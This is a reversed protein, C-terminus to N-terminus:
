FVPTTEPLSLRRLASFQLPPNPIHIQSNMAIALRYSEHPASMMGNIPKLRWFRSVQICPLARYGRQGRVWSDHLVADLSKRIGQRTALPGRVDYPLYISGWSGWWIRQRHMQIGKEKLIRVPVKSM